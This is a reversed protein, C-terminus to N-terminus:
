KPAPARQHLGPLRWRYVNVLVQFVVSMYIDFVFEFIKINLIILYKCPRFPVHKQSPLYLKLKLNLHNAKKAQITGIQLFRTKTLFLRTNQVQTM